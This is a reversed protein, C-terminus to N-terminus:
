FPEPRSDGPALVQHHVALSYLVSTELAVREKLRELMSLSDVAFRPWDNAVAEPNWHLLYDAWDAKLAELAALSAGAADGHRGAAILRGTEYIIPDEHSLHDRVLEALDELMHSAMEPRPKGATLRILAHAAHEIAEHEAILTQYDM